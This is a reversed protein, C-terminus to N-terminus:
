GWASLHMDSSIYLYRRRLIHMWTIRDSRLMEQSKDEGLSECEFDGSNRLVWTVGTKALGKSLSVHCKRPCPYDWHTANTVSSLSLFAALAPYCCHDSAIKRTQGLEVSNTGSESLHPAADSVVYMM